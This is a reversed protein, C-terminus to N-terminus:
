GNKKPSTVDDDCGSSYSCIHGGGPKYIQKCGGYEGPLLMPLRAAYKGSNPKRGKTKDSGLCSAMLLAGTVILKKM